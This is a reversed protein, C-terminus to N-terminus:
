RHAFELTKEKGAFWPLVVIKIKMRKIAKETEKDPLRQDHGLALVDPKIRRLSRVFSDPRGVIVADAIGLSKLRALRIKAPVANPKRNHADHALVVVLRKGLSRAAELMLVHAPHLRNFCGATFVVASGSRM